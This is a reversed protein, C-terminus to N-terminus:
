GTPEKYAKEFAQQLHSILGAVDEAEWVAFLQEDDFMGDRFEREFCLPISRGNYQASELLPPLDESNKVDVCDTISQYWFDFPPLRSALYHISEGKVCLVQFSCPQYKSFLTGEPLSLFTKFDVIRM